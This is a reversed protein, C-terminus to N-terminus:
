VKEEPGEENEQSIKTPTEQKNAKKLAPDKVNPVKSM